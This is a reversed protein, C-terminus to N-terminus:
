GFVCWSILSTNSTSISAIQPPLGIPRAHNEGSQVCWECALPNLGTSLCMRPSAHIAHLYACILRGHVITSSFTPSKPCNESLGKCSLRLDLWRIRYIRVNGIGGFLAKGEFSEDRARLQSIIMFKLHLPNRGGVARRSEEKDGLGVVLRDDPWFFRMAARIGYFDM